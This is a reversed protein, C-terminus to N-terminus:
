SAGAPDARPGNQRAAAGASVAARARNWKIRALEGPPTQMERAWPRTAWLVHGGGVALGVLVRV